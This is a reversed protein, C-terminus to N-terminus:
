VRFGFDKNLSSSLSRKPWRLGWIELIFGPGRYLRALISGRGLPVFLLGTVSLLYGRLCGWFVPLVVKFVSPAM